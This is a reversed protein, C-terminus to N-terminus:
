DGARLPKPCRAIKDLIMDASKTWVFRKPATNYHRLYDEIAAVLASVSRFTGRRIRQRTIEGFWREVLNLWSSSTPIFHFTVRPHAALWTQVPPSKHTSLNDLIVHISQDADTVQDIQDLFRVFGATDRKARCDGLVLGDFLRLAAFLCTTGHRRYDHTQRAPLGPRLPLVAQTRDLAKIGSKEDVCFVVAQAPPDLYLGVVDRLKDVFHPDTSLKFRTLRHPQLGHQHWITRVTTEGVDQARAMTRTSWHTAGPPTTTLTATVIAEIRDPTLRKRRGPRPADKLVGGVGLEVYRTLWYHVHNRSIRLRRAVETPRVHDALWLLLQARIAVKQPTRGSTAVDTLQARDAAPLAVCLRPMFM